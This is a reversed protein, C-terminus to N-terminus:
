VKLRQQWMVEECDLLENIEKRIKNIERGNRGNQDRLVLDNLVNRKKQIQRPVHGFVTRNWRSLEDACRKLGAVIDSPNNARVSGTWAEKIVDRCDERRTWMAEFQFRRKQSSQPAFSDTILLACHDSTTEVLHYVRMDRFNDIWKQTVLACDLRLYMRHRGEQMNCWTFELGCFGLDMFRCCNIAERFEDM